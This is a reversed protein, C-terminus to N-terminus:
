KSESASIDRGLEDGLERSRKAAAKIADRFVRGAEHQDLHMLAAYTTGNPSTVKRRLEAFSDEGLQAMRAAGLCTQVTLEDATERSLGSAVGADSMAEMLWFFYAPGSGSVATVADLESEDRVWCVVQSVARLVSEVDLRAEEGIREPDAYVGVAGCAILAPTNPMCRIVRPTYKFEETEGLWRQMDHIRVGAAISIVVANRQHVKEAVQKLVEPVHHPKVALVLIHARSAALVNDSTVPIHYKSYLHDRRAPLIESVTILHPPHNRRILGALVAEAMNGGGLFAIHKGLIATNSPAISASTPKACSATEM